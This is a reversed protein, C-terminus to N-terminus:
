LVHTCFTFSLMKTFSDNCHYNTVPRLSSPGFGPLDSPVTVFYNSFLFIELSADRNINCLFIFADAVHLKQQANWFNLLGM